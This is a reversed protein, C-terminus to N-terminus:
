IEKTLASRIIEYSPAVTAKNVIKGNFLISFQSSKCSSEKM